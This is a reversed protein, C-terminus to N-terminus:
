VLTLLAVKITAVIKNAQHQKRYHWRLVLVLVIAHESQIYSMDFNLSGFLGGEEFVTFAIEITKHAQGEAQICRVAEMIAAIGSKDDGGLITNGWVSSAM